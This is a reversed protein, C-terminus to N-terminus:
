IRVLEAMGKWFFYMGYVILIVGALGMFGHLIGRHVYHRCWSVTLSFILNWLGSGALMFGLALLVFGPHRHDLASYVGLWSFFDFPSALGLIMGQYFSNLRYLLISSTTAMKRISSLGMLILILGGLISLGTQLPPHHFWPSLGFHIILLICLNSVVDGLGVLWSSFFGREIGQRIMELNAPGVPTSLTLGLVLYSIWIEM